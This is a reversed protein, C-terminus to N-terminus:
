TLDYGEMMSTFKEELRKLEAKLAAFEERLTHDSEKLRAVEQPLNSDNPLIIKGDSVSIARIGECTWRRPRASGDYHTVCVELEDHILSISISCCGDSLVRYYSDTDSSFIAVAGDPAGSFTITIEDAALEPQRTLIVGCGDNLLRYEM